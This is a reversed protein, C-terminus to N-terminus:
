RSDARLSLVDFTPVRLCEAPSVLVEALLGLAVDGEVLEGARGSDAFEAEHAEEALASPEPGVRQSYRVADAIGASHKFGALRDSSGGGRGAEGIL